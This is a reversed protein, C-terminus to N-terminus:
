NSMSWLGTRLSLPSKWTRRRVLSDIFDDNLVSGVIRDQRDSLPISEDKSIRYRSVDDLTSCLLREVIINVHRWRFRRTFASTSFHSRMAFGGLSDLFAHKANKHSNQVTGEALVISPLNWDHYFMDKGVSNSRVLNDYLASGKTALLDATYHYDCVVGDAGRGSQQRRDAEAPTIFLGIVFIGDDRLKQYVGSYMEVADKARVGKKHSKLWQPDLTEIGMLCFRMGARAALKSFDPNLRVTDGRLFSGFTFGFNRRIMEELLESTHKYDHAFNDDTFIFERVGLRHLRTMEELMRDVSKYRQKFGWYTNINCFDCRHPCGRSMELSVAHGRRGTGLGYPSLELRDWMPFPSDDLSITPAKLGTTHVAGARGYVLNPVQSVDDGGAVLVEMLSRFAIEGEGTIVYDAGAQIWREPFASAHNGGMVIQVGPNLARALRVTVETDLAKLPSMASIALIDAGALRAKYHRFPERAVYGDFMEIHVPLDAIAAGLVPYVASPAKIVEGLTDVPFPWSDILTKPHLFLIRRNTGAPSAM